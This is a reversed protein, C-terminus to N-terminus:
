EGYRTNKYISLSIFLDIINNIVKYMSYIYFINEGQSEQKGLHITGAREAEALILSAGTGEDDKHDEVLIAETHRHREQVLSGLVPILL